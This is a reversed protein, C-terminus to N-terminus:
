CSSCEPDTLHFLEVFDMDWMNRWSVSLGITQYRFLRQKIDIDLWKQYFTSVVENMQIIVSHMLEVMLEHFWWLQPTRGHFKVHFAQM